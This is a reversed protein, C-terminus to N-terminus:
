YIMLKIKVKNQDYVEKFYLIYDGVREGFYRSIVNKIKM